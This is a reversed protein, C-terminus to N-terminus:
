MLFGGDTRFGLSFSAGEDAGPAVGDPLRAETFHAWRKPFYLVDGPGLVAELATRRIAAVRTADSAAAGGLRPGEGGEGDVGGVLEGSLPAPPSSGHIDVRLRRALPHDEPYPELAPLTDEPWLVMRKVGRVQCLYSDQEDYHLPSYTGPTSVWLRGLTGGGGGGGGSGGGGSGELFAFDVGDMMAHPALAQLYCREGEAYLAPPLGGRGARLRRCFESAAMAVTRSPPTLAGRRVAPHSERCFTVGPSPSVRVMARPLADALTALDWEELAPWHRGVGRLLVPGEARGILEWARALAGASSADVEVVRSSPTVWLQPPPDSLLPPAASESPEGGAATRAVAEADPPVRGDLARRAASSLDAFRVGDQLAEEYCRYLVSGSGSEALSALLRSYERKSGPLGAARAAALRAFSAPVDIPPALRSSAASWWTSISSLVM